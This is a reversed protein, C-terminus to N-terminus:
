EFLFQLSNLTNKYQMKLVEIIKLINPHHRHYYHYFNPNFESHFSECTNTTISGCSSASAWNSPLFKSNEETYNTVVYDHLENITNDDPNEAM